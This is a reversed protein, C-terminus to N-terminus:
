LGIYAESRKLMRPSFTNDKMELCKSEVVYRYGVITRKDLANFDRSAWFMSFIHHPFLDYAFTGKDNVRSMVFTHHRKIYDALQRREIVDAISEAGQQSLTCSQAAEFTTVGKKLARQYVNGFADTHFHGPKPSVVRQQAHTISSGLFYNSPVRYEEGTKTVAVMYEDNFSPSDFWGLRAVFFVLPAIIVVTSLWIKLGKPVHKQAVFTLAIVILLNLWIWKYFFIGSVIFIVIHSIDYIGTLLLTWRVRIIAVVSLLQVVLTTLNVLVVNQAFLIYLTQTIDPGFISLPLSGMESAAFALYHTPNQVVWQWLPESIFVKQLGSYFYNAFHAAVATLYVAEAPTVQNEPVAKNWIGLYRQGIYLLGMGLVVLFGFELLPMYDTPSIGMGSVEAVVVKQWQVAVLAPLAWIPRWLAMLCFLVGGWRYFNMEAFSKLGVTDTLVSPYAFFLYGAFLVMIGRLTFRSIRPLAKMEIRTFFLTVLLLAVFVLPRADPVFRGALVMAKLPVFAAVTAMCLALHPQKEAWALVKNVWSQQKVRALINQM